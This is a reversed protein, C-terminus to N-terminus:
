FNLIFHLVNLPYDSHEEFLLARHLGASFYIVSAPTAKYVKDPYIARLM